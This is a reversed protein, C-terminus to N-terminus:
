PRDSWPEITGVVHVHHERDIAELVGSSIEEDTLWRSGEAGRRFGLIVQAYDISAHPAFQEHFRTAIEAPVSSGSGIIHFFTSTSVLSTLRLAVDTDHIWAVVLEPPSTGVLHSEITELYADPEDWNLALQHHTVRPDILADLTELSDHTRAVSTIERSRRAIDLSVDQLMGTGGLVLAHEFESETPM